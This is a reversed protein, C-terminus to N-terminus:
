RPATTADPDFGEFVIQDAFARARALDEPTRVTWAIIPLGFLKRHISPALAPLAKVWYSVFSPRTRLSHLMHRRASREIRSAGEPFPFGTLFGVYLDGDPGFEVSTPVPNDTSFDWATLVSVGDEPTWQMLCNCGANAIVVSVPGHDARIADVFGQTIELPLLDPDPFYRYDHAEEKSRM